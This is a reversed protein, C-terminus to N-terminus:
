EAGFMQGANSIIFGLFALLFVLLMGTDSAQVGTPILSVLQTSWFLLALVSGLGCTLNTLLGFLLGCAVLGTGVTCILIFGVPYQTAVHQWFDSWLSIYQGAQQSSTIIQRVYTPTTNTTLHLALFLTNWVWIAGFAIRLCTISIRHRSLVLGKGGGIRFPILGKGVSDGM